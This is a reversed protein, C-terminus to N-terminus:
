LDQEVDFPLRQSEQSQGRHTPPFGSGLQNPPRPNQLPHSTQTRLAGQIREKPAMGPRGEGRGGGTHEVVRDHEQRTMGESTILPNVDDVYSFLHVTVKRGTATHRTATGTGQRPALEQCRLTTANLTRSLFIAWLIPSLPSGHPTGQSMHGMGRIKDGRRTASFGNPPVAMHRL